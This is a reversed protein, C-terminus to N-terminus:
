GVSSGLGPITKANGRPVRLTHIQLPDQMNTQLPNQQLRHKETDEEGHVQHKATGLLEGLPVYKGEGDGM